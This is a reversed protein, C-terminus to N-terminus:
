VEQTWGAAWVPTAKETGNQSVLALHQEIVPRNPLENKEAFGTEYALWKEAAKKGKIATSWKVDGRTTFFDATFGKGQVTVQHESM